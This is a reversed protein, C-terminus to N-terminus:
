PLLIAKLDERIKMWIHGLNNEGDWSGDEQLAAGWFKGGGSGRESADEVIIEDGTALLM